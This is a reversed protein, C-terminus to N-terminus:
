GPSVRMIEAMTTIGKAVLQIGNEKMPIMGTKQAEERLRNTGAKEIILTKITENVLLLEFIGTRSKYGTNGCKECGKPRYFMVNTEEGDPSKIKLSEVIKKPPKYPERCNLCLTRVLRQSLIAILSSAILFPEIGMDTLRTITSVADNTHLTSLVLHGTLAANMAVKGTEEDRIEGVLIVDPDQRLSARLCNAFTLGIKHNIQVQTIGGERARGSLLDYEIPNELTIINKSPSKIKNLVSYLTTTKGSGTPGTVLIIGNVANLAEEFRAQTEPLFGLYPIDLIFNNKDLVRIVIKEGYKAPLTSVRFDIDRKHLVARIQGDQPLRKESIDMNAMIKVRSTILPQLEKSYFRGENLIGDIRYKVLLYKEQPEIHIDSARAKVAGAMISDVLEIIPTGDAAGTKNEMDPFVQTNETKEAASERNYFQEILAHLASELACVPRLAYGTIIQIDDLTVVDNPFAMALTIENGKKGIPIVKYKRIIEEPLTGFVDKDVDQSGPDAFPTRFYKELIQPIDEQKLLGQKILVQEIPEETERKKLMAASAQEETIRSTRLLVDLIQGRSATSPM